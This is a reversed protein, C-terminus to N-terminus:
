LCTGWTPPGPRSVLLDTNERIPNPGGKRLGLYLDSADGQCLVAAPAGVHAQEKKFTELEAPTTSSNQLIFADIRAVSQRLEAQLGSDQGPFCRAGVEAALALIAAACFVGEGPPLQPAAAPAPGGALAVLVGVLALRRVLPLGTM